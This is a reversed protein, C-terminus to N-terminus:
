RDAGADPDFQRGGGRHSDDRSGGTLSRLVEFFVREVVTARRRSGGGPDGSLLIQGSDPSVMYLPSPPVERHIRTVTERWIEAPLGGGTVGTLPTNDDNGM